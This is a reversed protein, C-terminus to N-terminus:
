DRGFPVLQMDFDYVSGCLMNGVLVSEKGCIITIAENVQIAACIAATTPLASKELVDDDKNEGAYLRKLLGSGPPVILAQLFDEAIAGHVITLNKKAAADELIIRSKSNDLGDIILDVGDLIYDANEKTLFDHVAIVEVDSNICAIRKAACDVKYQGLNKETSFAQRNLNSEDFVDGDIIKLCGIGVRSMFEACYGGLGGCGAVLVCTSQLTAMDDESLAPMNRIYREEVSM